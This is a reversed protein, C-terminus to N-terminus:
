ANLVAVAAAFLEPTAAAVVDGRTLDAGGRWNGITGGAGRVVPVLAMLDYPQLGAEIILDLSGAALRAYAYGDHGYRVVRCKSRLRAFAAGQGEDFLEPDTTSLRADPLQACGSTALAASGSMLWASQGHGLYREDLRPADIIGLVPDGDRLLAILTVWTPLGCVFSRTGDIPDLSWCYPGAAAQEAFEEGAIGHEPYAERIMARMAAEAAVDAETVPDYGGQAKNRAAGAGQWRKLTEGRAADALRCAFVSLEDLSPDLNM